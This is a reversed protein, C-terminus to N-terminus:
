IPWAYNPTFNEEGPLPLPKGGEAHSREALELIGITRRAQEATVILPEGMILHNAVNQYYAHWNPKWQALNVERRSGDRHQIMTVPAGPHANTLGGETGLIRWGARRVATLQGQEVTASAGGEFRINVLAYDENSSNHWVHKHFVGSVSEIRRPIINLLWDIYHAGWDYLIGGSVPKSARWWNNPQNWDGTAADAHFVEGIEGSRVLSLMQRFDGDWRRNHFCSLMKGSEKAAAIMADAEAITISFPKETVVHKGAKSAAVCVEAHLNHPLIIVVLDVKDDKLLDQYRTYTKIHDGLEVKAQKVREPNADCVAVTKCGYQANLSDSHVKGMNFAGGYGIIGVGITTDFKEGCVHRLSREIMRVVHPNLIARPHGGLALYAVEGKDAQRTFGVPTDKGDIHAVAFPTGDDPAEIALLEDHVDFEDCRVAITHGSEQASNTFRVKFDFATPSSSLKHAGVLGALAEHQAVTEVAQHLVVLGAGGRVYKALADAHAAPLTDERDTLILVADFGSDPLSALAPVGNSTVRVVSLTFRGAAELQQTLQNIAIDREDHKPSSTVVLVKREASSSSSM